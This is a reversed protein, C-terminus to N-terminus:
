LHSLVNVLFSSLMLGSFVWGVRDLERKCVGGNLVFILGHALGFGAGGLLAPLWVAKQPTNEGGGPTLKELRLIRGLLIGLSLGAGLLIGYVVHVFGLFGPVPSGALWAVAGRWVGLGAGQGLAGGLM